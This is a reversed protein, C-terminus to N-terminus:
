SRGRPAKGERRYHTGRSVEGSAKREYRPFVEGPQFSVFGTTKTGIRNRSIASHLKADADPYDPEGGGSDPKRDGGSRQYGHGLRDLYLENFESRTISWIHSDIFKGERFYAQPFTGDLSMGAREFIEQAPNGDFSEGWIRNLNQDHFGHWLLLWLANAGYGRGQKEPCIYLSFEAKQNVRDISTLGCVGADNFYKGNVEDLGQVGFMKITPDGVIKGKWAAQEEPSILSYQRCWKRIEPLNRWHMAECPIVNSLRVNDISPHSIM